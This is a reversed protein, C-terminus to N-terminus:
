SGAPTGSQGRLGSCRAEVDAAIEAPRWSRGSRQLVYDLTYVQVYRGGSIVDVSYVQSPLLMELQRWGGPAKAEDITVCPAVPGGRVLLCDQAGAVSLTGCPTPTVQVREELFRALSSAGTSLLERAVFGRVPLPSAERRQRFQDVRVTLEDLVVGAPRVRVEVEGGESGIAWRAATVEYGVRSVLVAQTGVPVAPLGFFGQADSTASQGAEPLRVLAGSVPARTAVDVVRGSVPATPGQALLPVPAM